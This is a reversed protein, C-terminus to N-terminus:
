RERRGRVRTGMKLRRKMAGSSRRRRQKRMKKSIAVTLKRKKKLREDETEEEGGDGEKREVMGVMEEEDESEEEKDNERENEDNESNKNIEDNDFYIGRKRVKIVHSRNTERVDSGQKVVVTKGEKGIVKAPGRWKDKKYYVKEGVNIEEM